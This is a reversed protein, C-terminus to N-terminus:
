GWFRAHKRPVENKTLSCCFLKPPMNCLTVQATWCWPDATYPTLSHWQLRVKTKTTEFTCPYLKSRCFLGSVSLHSDFNVFFFVILKIPNVQLGWLNENDTIGWPVVISAVVIILYRFSVDLLNIPRLVCLSERLFECRRISWAFREWGSDQLIIAFLVSDWNNM